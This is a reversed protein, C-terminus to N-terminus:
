AQKAFPRLGFGAAKERTIVGEDSISSGGSLHGQSQALKAANAMNIAIQEGLNRAQQTPVSTAQPTPTTAQGGTGAIGGARDSRVFCSYEPRGLMSAIYEGVPRYDKSRVAFTDGQAEIQFDDRLLRTLHVAGGTVLQHDALARGLESDLAYRKAREETLTKANRESQLQKESEERQLKLAEEIQGKQALLQIKEARAAEDRTRQESEMQALRTQTAIFGQLQEESLIVTKPASAAMPPPPGAVPVPAAQAPYTVNVNVPSPQANAPPAQVAAPHPNAITPIGSPILEDAMM